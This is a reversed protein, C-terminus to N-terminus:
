IQSMGDTPSTKKVRKVFASDSTKQKQPIYILSESSQVGEHTSRSRASPTLKLEQLGKTPISAKGAQLRQLMTPKWAGDHDPDTGLPGSRIGLWRFRRWHPYAGFSGPFAKRFLYDKQLDSGVCYTELWAM